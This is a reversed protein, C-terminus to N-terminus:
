KTLSRVGTGSDKLSKSYSELSKHYEAQPSTDEVEQGGPKGDAKKDQKAKKPSPEDKDDESPPPPSRKGRKKQFSTHTFYRAPAFIPVGVFRDAFQKKRELVELQKKKEDDETSSQATTPLSSPTTSSSSSSTTGSDSAASPHPSPSHSM